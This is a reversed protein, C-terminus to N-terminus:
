EGEVTISVIKSTVKNPVVCRYLSGEDEHSVNTVTLIDFLKGDFITTNINHRPTRSVLLFTNNEIGKIHWEATTIQGRTISKGSLVCTLVAEGGSCVKVNNQQTTITVTIFLFWM